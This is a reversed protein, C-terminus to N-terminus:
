ISDKKGFTLFEIFITVIKAVIPFYFKREYREAFNM